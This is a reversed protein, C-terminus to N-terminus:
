LGQYERSVEVVGTDAAGKSPSLSEGGTGVEPVCPRQGAESLPGMCGWLGLDASSCGGKAAQGSDFGRSIWPCNSIICLLSNYFEEYWSYQGLM